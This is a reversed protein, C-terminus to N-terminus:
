CPWHMATIQNKRQSQVSQSTKSQARLSLRSKDANCAQYFKHETLCLAWGRLPYIFIPAPGGLSISCDYASAQFLWHTKKAGSFLKHWFGM